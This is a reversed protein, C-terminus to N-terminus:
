TEGLLTEYSIALQESDHAHALIENLLSFRLKGVESPQLGNEKAGVREWLTHNIQKYHKEFDAYSISSFYDAHLRQLSRKESLQFDLLTDDLDFLIIDYM